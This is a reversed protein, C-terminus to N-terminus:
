KRQKIDQGQIMAIRMILGTKETASAEYIFTLRNGFSFNHGCLEYPNLVAQSYKLAFHDGTRVSMKQLQKPTKSSNICKPEKNFQNSVEIYGENCIALLFVPVPLLSPLATM